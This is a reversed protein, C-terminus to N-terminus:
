FTISIARYYPTGAKLCIRKILSSAYDANEAEYVEWGVISRDYLDSFFICITFCEKIHAM